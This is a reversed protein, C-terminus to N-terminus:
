LADLEHGGPFPEPQSFPQRLAEANRRGHLVIGIRSCQAFRSPSCSFTGPAKDKDGDAGPDAGPDDQVTLEIAAHVACVRLDAVVDDVGGTGRAGAPCAAAPFAKGASQRKRLAGPIGGGTLSAGRRFLAFCPRTSGHTLLATVQPDAQRVQDCDEGGVPDGQSTSQHAAAVKEPLGDLVADALIAAHDRMFFGSNHWGHHAIVAPQCARRAGPHM